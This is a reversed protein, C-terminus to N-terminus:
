NKTIGVVSIQSVFITDNQTRDKLSLLQSLREGISQPLQKTISPPSKFQVKKRNFMVYFALLDVSKWEMMREWLLM